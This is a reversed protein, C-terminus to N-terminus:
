RLDWRAQEAPDWTWQAQPRTLQRERYREIVLDVPLSPWVSLEGTNKDIIGRNAGILPPEDPPQKGWVVYGLDFEQVMPTPSAGAPAGEGLWKEAIRDAEERTIM